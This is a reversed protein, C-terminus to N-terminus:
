RNSLPGSPTAVKHLMDLGSRAVLATKGRLRKGAERTVASHLMKVTAESKDSAKSKREAEFVRSVDVVQGGVHAHCRRALREPPVGHM